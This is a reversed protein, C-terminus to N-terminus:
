MNLGSLLYSMYLASNKKKNNLGYSPHQSIQPLQDTHDCASDCWKCVTCESCTEIDTCYFPLGKM